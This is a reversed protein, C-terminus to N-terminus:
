KVIGGKHDILLAVTNRIRAIKTIKKSIRTARQSLRIEDKRDPRLDNLVLQYPSLIIKRLRLLYSKLVLVDYHQNQHAKNIRILHTQNNM